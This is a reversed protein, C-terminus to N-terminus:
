TFNIREGCYPCHKIPTVKIEAACYPCFRLKANNYVVSAEGKAAQPMRTRRQRLKLVIVLLGLVGGAVGIVLLWTWDMAPSLDMFVFSMDYGGDGDRLVVILAGKFVDWSIFQRVVRNSGVSFSVSAPITISGQFNGSAPHYTLRTMFPQSGYPMLQALNGIVCIPYFVVFAALTGQSSEPDNGTVVVQLPQDVQAAQIYVQGTGPDINSFATNQFTSGQKNISPDQNTVYFTSRQSLEFPYLDSRTAHIFDLLYLGSPLNLGIPITISNSSVISHTSTVVSKTSFIDEALIVSPDGPNGPNGSLIMTENQLPADFAVTLNSGRNGSFTIASITPVSASRDLKLLDFHRIHHQTGITINLTVRYPEASFALPIINISSNGFWGNAVDNLGVQLLVGSTNSVTCSAATLNSPVYHAGSTTNSVHFFAQMSPESYTIGPTSYTDIRIPDTLGMAYAFLNDFFGTNNASSTAEISAPLISESGAVLISGNGGAAPLMSVVASGYASFAVDPARPDMNNLTCGSTWALRTIGTGLVNSSNINTLTFDVVDHDWGIDRIFELNTTTFSVNMGLTELVANSGDISFEQHRSGLLVVHGGSQHFRSLAALEADFLTSKLPPIIVMDYKSLWSDVFATKQQSSNYRATWFDMGTDIQIGQNALYEIYPYYDMAFRSFPFGHPFSDELSHYSDLYVKFEAKHLTLRITMTDLVADSANKVLVDVSYNGPRADFSTSISVNFFTAGVASNITTANPSIALQMGAPIPTTDFHIGQMGHHLIKTIVDTKQGPFDVIDYPAYPIAKPYIRALQTLNNQTKISTLFAIARTINILGMGQTCADFGLDKATELLSAAVVAPSLHNQHFRALIVAAAGVVMPTAMSTGDLAVYDNTATVSGSLTLEFYGYYKQIFSDSGLTSVIGEGPAVVDPKFIRGMNPGRSSFDTIGQTQDVAGVSIAGVAGAPSSVTFYGPGDNGNAIVVLVGQETANKVAMSEPDFPDPNGGGLSLNIIDLSNNVAYEIGTIIDDELGSGSENLIKVNYLKVGPAIGAYVQGSAAGSGAIIGAVHTGHGYEDYVDTPDTGSAFNVSAAISGSLDQHVAYAGNQEFGIGTDLVGVKIASLNLSQVLSQNRGIMAHWWNAAQSSLIGKARDIDSDPARVALQISFNENECVRFSVASSLAELTGLDRSRISGSIAPIISFQNKLVFTSGATAQLFANRDINYTEANFTIIVPVSDDPSGAQISRLLAPDIRLTETANNSSAGRALSPYATIYLNMASVSLLLLIAKLKRKSLLMSM